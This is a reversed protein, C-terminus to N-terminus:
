DLAIDGTYQLVYLGGAIREVAYILKRDDVFVDNIQSTPLHSGEPKVPVFYALEEIRYPNRLDYVRVGGNFYTGLTTNVLQAGTPQEHNEHLNHAGFRGGRTLYDRENSVPATALPVLNGEGAMNVTWILKPYDSNDNRVAEESVVLLEREFLPVVTHTFGSQPPHPNWHSVLTPRSLDSVDLITAGSDLWAVYARSPHSPLVNVSHMRHGAKNPHRPLPPEGKRMGPLWWRGFEVPHEPDELDVIVYFQDDTPDNPEFDPMGTSLHAYRGDVFWVFHCGRSFPGSTDFFSLQRLHEPDSAEYIALGAPQQGVRQTQRAVVLIDGSMSLSNFRVHENEAPVQAILEPERPDTVDVVDLGVPGSETA